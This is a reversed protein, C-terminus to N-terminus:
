LVYKVSEIKGLAAYLAKLQEESSAMLEVHFSAYTGKRSLTRTIDSLIELNFEDEIVRVIQNQVHDSDDRIVRFSFKCPFNLLDRFTPEHKTETM